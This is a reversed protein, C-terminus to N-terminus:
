GERLGFFFVRTRLNCKGGVEVWVLIKGLYEGGVKIWVLMEWCFGLVLGFVYCIYLLGVYFYIGVVRLVKGCILIMKRIGM